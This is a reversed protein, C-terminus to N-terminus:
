QGLNQYSNCKIGLPITQATVSYVSEIHQKQKPLFFQDVEMHIAKMQFKTHEAHAPRGDHTICFCLAMSIRADQKIQQHLENLHYEPAFYLLWGICKTQKALPLQHLWM